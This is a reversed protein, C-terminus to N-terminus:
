LLSKEPYYLKDYSKRFRNWNKSINFKTRWKVASERMVDYSFELELGENSVEMVNDVYTDYSYIDGPMVPLTHIDSM